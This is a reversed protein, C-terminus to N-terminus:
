ILRYGLLKVTYSIFDTNNNTRVIVGGSKIVYKYPSTENMDSNDSSYDEFVLYNDYWNRVMSGPDTSSYGSTDDYTYNLNSGLVEIDNRRCIRMNDQTRSLMYDKHATGEFQINVRWQGLDILIPDTGPLVSSIPTREHSIVCSEATFWFGDLVTTSTESEYSLIRLALAM